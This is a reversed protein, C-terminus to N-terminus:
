RQKPSLITWLIACYKCMYEYIPIEKKITPRYVNVDYSSTTDYDYIDVQM